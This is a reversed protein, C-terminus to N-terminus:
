TLESKKIWKPSWNGYMEESNKKWIGNKMVTDWIGVYKRRFVASHVVQGESREPKFPEPVKETSPVTGLVSPLVAQLRWTQHHQKFFSLPIEGLLM